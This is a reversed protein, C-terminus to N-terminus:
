TRSGGWACGSWVELSLRAREEAEKATRAEGQAAAAAARLRTAEVRSANDHEAVTADLERRAAQRSYNLPVRHLM